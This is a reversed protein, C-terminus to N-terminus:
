RMLNEVVHRLEEYAHEDSPVKRIEKVYDEFLKYYNVMPGGFTRRAHELPIYDKRILFALEEFFDM